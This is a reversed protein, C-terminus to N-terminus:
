GFNCLPFFLWSFVLIFNGSGLTREVASLIYIKMNNVQGGSEKLSKSFLYSIIWFRGFETGASACVSLLLAVPFVKGWVCMRPEGLFVALVWGTLRSCSLVAEGAPWSCCPPHDSKFFQCLLTWSTMLSPLAQLWHGGELCPFFCPKKWLGNVM